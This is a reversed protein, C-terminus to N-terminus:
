FGQGGRACDGIKRHLDAEFGRYGRVAPAQADQCAVREPRSGIHPQRHNGHGQQVALAIKALAEVILSVLALLVRDPRGLICQLGEGSARVYSDVAARHSEARPAIDDEAYSAMHHGHVEQVSRERVIVRVILGQGIVQVPTIKAVPQALFCQQPEAAHRHELREAVAANAGVVHIFSVGGKEADREKLPLHAAAVRHVMGGIIVLVYAFAQHEGSM